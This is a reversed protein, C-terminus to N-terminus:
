HSKPRLAADPDAIVARVHALEDGGDPYARPARELAEDWNTKAGERMTCHTNPWAWM